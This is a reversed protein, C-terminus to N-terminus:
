FPHQNSSEMCNLGYNIKICIQTRHFKGKTVCSCKNCRVWGLSFCKNYEVVIPQLCMVHKLHKFENHTCHNCSEVHISYCLYIQIYERWLAPVLSFIEYDFQANHAQLPDWLETLFICQSNFEPCLLCHEAAKITFTNPWKCKYVICGVPRVYWVSKLLSKISIIRLIYLWVISM